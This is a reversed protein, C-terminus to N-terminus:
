REDVVISLENQTNYQESKLKKTLEIQQQLIILNEARKAYQREADRIVGDHMKIRDERHKYHVYGVIGLSAAMCAGFTVKSVLSM